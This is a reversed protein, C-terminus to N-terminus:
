PRIALRLAHQAGERVTDAVPESALRCAKVYIDWAAAHFDQEEKTWEAVDVLTTQVLAAAALSLLHRKHTNM